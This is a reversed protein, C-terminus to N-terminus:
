DARHGPMTQQPWLAKKRALEATESILEHAEDMKHVRSYLQALLRSLWIQSTIAGTDRALAVARELVSTAAQIRGLGQLMFALHGLFKLRLWDPLDHTLLREFLEM